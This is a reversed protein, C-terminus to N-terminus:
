QRHVPRLETNTKQFSLTFSFTSGTQYGSYDNPNNKVQMEGGSGMVSFGDATLIRGDSDMTFNGNRTYVEGDPTNVVFFGDGVIALDLPNGTKQLSGATFDTQVEGNKVASKESEDPSADMSEVLHRFFVNDKKYGVTTINALNNANIELQRQRPIMGAQSINLGKLM